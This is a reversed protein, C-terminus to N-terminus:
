NVTIGSNSRMIHGYKSPVKSPVSEYFESARKYERTARNRLM